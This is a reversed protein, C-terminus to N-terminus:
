IEAPTDTQTQCFDFFFWFFGQLVCKICSKITSEWTKDANIVDCQKASRVKWWKAKVRVLITDSVENLYKYKMSIWHGSIGNKNSEIVSRQTYQYETYFSNFQRRTVHQPPVMSSSCVSISRDHKNLSLFYWSKRLRAAAQEHLHETHTKLTSSHKSLATQADGSEAFVMVCGSFLDIAEAIGNDRLLM